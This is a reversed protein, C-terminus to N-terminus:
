SEIRHLDAGMPPRRLARKANTEGRVEGTRLGVLYAVWLCFTVGLGVALSGILASM